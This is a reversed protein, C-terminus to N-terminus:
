PRAEAAAIVAAIKAHLPDHGAALHKLEEAAEKLAELLKPVVRFYHDRVQFCAEFYRGVKGVPERERWVCADHAYSADPGREPAGCIVCGGALWADIFPASM